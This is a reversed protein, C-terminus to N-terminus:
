EKVVNQITSNQATSGQTDLLGDVGIGTSFMLSHQPGHPLTSANTSGDSLARAGPM